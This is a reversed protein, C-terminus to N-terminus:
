SGYNIDFVLFLQYSQSSIILCNALFGLWREALHIGPSQLVPRNSPMPLHPDAVVGVQPPAVKLAAKWLSCLGHTANVWCFHYMENSTSDWIPNPILQLEHNLTVDCFDVCESWIVFYNLIECSRRPDWLKRCYQSKHNKDSGPTGPTRDIHGTRELQSM